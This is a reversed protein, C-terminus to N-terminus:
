SQLSCVWYFSQLFGPPPLRATHPCAAGARPEVEEAALPWAGVRRAPCAASRQVGRQVAASHMLQM